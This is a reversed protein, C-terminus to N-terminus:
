MYIFNLNDLDSLFTSSAHTFAFILRHVNTFLFHGASLNEMRRWPFKMNANSRVPIVNPSKALQTVNCFNLCPKMFFTM